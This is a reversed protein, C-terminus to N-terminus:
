GRRLNRGTLRPQECARDVISRRKWMRPFSERVASWFVWCGSIWRKFVSLKCSFRQKLQVEAVLIRNLSALISVIKAPM